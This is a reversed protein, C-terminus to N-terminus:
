ATSLSSHPCIYIKTCIDKNTLRSVSCLVSELIDVEIDTAAAKKIEHCNSQVSLWLEDEVAKYKERHSQLELLARWQNETM